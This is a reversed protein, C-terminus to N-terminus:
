HTRLMTVIDLWPVDGGVHRLMNLAQARHHTGHCCLQLMTVGLPFARHVGPRPVAEVTRALGADDLGELLTNRERATEDFLRVLEAISTTEDLEPFPRGPGHTWNELWWQEAFRIHLLTKRLTGIGIPFERDLAADDLEAAAEHVCDRAWDAYRYYARVTEIDLATAAASPTGGGPQELKFFVYDLGPKIPEGGVRKLMNIAQARHHMGHNCVHLMLDGL